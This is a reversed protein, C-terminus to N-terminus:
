TRNCSDINHNGFVVRALKQALFNLENTARSCSFIGVSDPGNEALIKRFREAVLDLAEDWSAPRLAGRTRVLPDTLRLYRTQMCEAGPCLKSQLGRRLLGDFTRAGAQQGGIFICERAQARIEVARELSRGGSGHGTGRDPFDKELKDL